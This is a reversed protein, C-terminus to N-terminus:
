SCGYSTGIRSSDPKRRDAGQTGAEVADGCWRTTTRGIGTRLSAPDGCAAPGAGLSSATPAADDAAIRKTEGRPPRRSERVHRGRSKDERRGGLRACRQRGRDCGREKESLVSGERLPWFGEETSRKWRDVAELEPVGEM